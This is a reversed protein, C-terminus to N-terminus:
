IDNPNSFFSPALWGSPTLVGPGYGKLEDPSTFHVGESAYLEGNAPANSGTLLSFDILTEAGSFDAESTLLRNEFQGACANGETIVSTLVDTYDLTLGDGSCADTYPAKDAFATPAETVIGFDVDEPCVVVPATTDEITFTASTKSTNGCDDTATFEVTVSGTDGCDDTFECISGEGEGCVPTFGTCVINPAAIWDAGNCSPSTDTSYYYAVEASNQDLQDLWVWRENAPEYYVSFIDPYNPDQGTSYLNYGNEDTGILEHVVSIFSQGDIDCSITFDGDSEGSCSNSWTVNGCDDSAMAGANNALWAELQATNGEGDCEVTM